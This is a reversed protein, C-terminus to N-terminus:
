IDRWARDAPLRCRLVTPRAHWASLVPGEIRGSRREGHMDPRRRSWVRSTKERQQIGLARIPKCISSNHGECHGSMARCMHLGSYSQSAIHLANTCTEGRRASVRFEVQMGVHAMACWWISELICLPQQMDCLGHVLCLGQGHRWTQWHSPADRAWPRVPTAQGAPATLRAVRTPAPLTPLATPPGACASTSTLTARWVRSGARASM